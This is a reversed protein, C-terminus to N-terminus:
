ALVPPAFVLVGLTDACWDDWWTTWGVETSSLASVATITAGLSSSLLGGALTLALVERLSDLTPAKGLLRRVLWAGALAQVTDGCAIGVAQLLSRNAPEPDNGLSIPSIYVLVTGLFVGPSVRYGFFLVCGLAIGTPPWVLPPLGAPSAWFSLSGAIYIAAALELPEALWTVRAWLGSTPGRKM